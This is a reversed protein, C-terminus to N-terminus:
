DLNLDMSQTHSLMARRLRWRSPTTARPANASGTKLAAGPGLGAAKAFPPKREGDPGLGRLSKRAHFSCKMPKPNPNRDKRGAQEQTAAGSGGGGSAFLDLQVPITLGGGFGMLFNADEGVLPAQPLLTFNLFLEDLLRAPQLGVGQDDM